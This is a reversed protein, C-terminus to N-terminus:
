TQMDLLSIGRTERDEGLFSTVPGVRDDPALIAEDQATGVVLPCVFRDPETPPFPCAVVPAAVSVLVVHPLDVSRGVSREM